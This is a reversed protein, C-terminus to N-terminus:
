DLSPADVSLTPASSGQRLAGRHRPLRGWPRVIRMQFEARRRRRWPAREEVFALCEKNLTKGPQAQFQDLADVFLSLNAGRWAICSIM